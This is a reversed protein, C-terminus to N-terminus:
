HNKYELTTEGIVSYMNLEFEDGLDAKPFTVRYVETWRDIFSFLKEEIPTVELKEISKPELVSGSSTKLTMEWFTNESTDFRCMKRKCYLGVFFETSEASRSEVEEAFKASKVPDLHRLKAVKEIYAGRFKPSFYTAHIIMAASFDKVNFVRGSDTYRSLEKAYNAAGANLSFFIVFFAIATRFFVRM